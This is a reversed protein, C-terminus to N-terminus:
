NDRRHFRSPRNVIFGPHPIAEIAQRDGSSGLDQLYTYCSRQLLNFKIAPFLYPLAGTIGEIITGSRRLILSPSCKSIATSWIGLKSM